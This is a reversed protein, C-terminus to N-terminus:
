QTKQDALQFELTFVTGKGLTSEVTIRGGHLRCIEDVFSLGLGSSRMERSRAKDVRYFRQFIKEQEEPAIGIGDDAVRLFARGDRKDLTVWISGGDRGYKDANSILNEVLRTMLTVDMRMMVDDKVDLILKKDSIVAADECVARVVISFDEVSFDFCEQGQELRSIMLLDGVLKSMAWAQKQIRLVQKRDEESLAGGDLLLECQAQIVAIPTKLEHSANDTFHKEAEFSQHLRALMRNFGDTLSELERIDTSVARVSRVDDPTKIQAVTRSLKGVGSFGRSSILYGVGAAIAIYVPLLISLLLMSRQDAVANGAEAAVGRVFVDDFLKESCRVDLTIVPVDYLNEEKAFLLRCETEDLSAFLLANEYASSVAARALTQPLAPSIADDSRSESSWDLVEGTVADVTFCLVNFRVRKDFLCYRKGNLELSIIEGSDSPDPLIAASLDMGSAAYSGALIRGDEALVVSAVGSQNYTFDNEVELIGNEYDVEDANIEVQTMLSSRVNLTSIYRQSLVFALGLAAGLVTMLVTYWINIRLRASYGAKKKEKKKM